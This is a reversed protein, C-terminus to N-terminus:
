RICTLMRFASANGIAVLFSPYALPVFLYLGWWFLVEGFYNPHRSLSWLGPPVGQTAAEPRSRFRQMQIDATGEILVVSLTVLAAVIDLWTLHTHSGSLNPWLALCGLFVLITLM